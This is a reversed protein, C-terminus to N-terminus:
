ARRPLAGVVFKQVREVMAAGRNVEEMIQGLVAPLTRGGVPRGSSHPAALSRDVNLVAVLLRPEIREPAVTEGADTIVVEKKTKRGCVSLDGDSSREVLDGTRFWGDETFAERDHGADLYGRCISEGKLLLEGDADVAYQVTEIATGITGLRRRAYPNVFAAGATETMGYGECVAIGLAEFFTCLSPEIPACGVIILRLRSGLQQVLSRFISRELLAHLAGAPLAMRTDRVAAARTGIGVALAFCARQWRPRRAVQRLIRSRFCSLVKPVAFLFSPQLHELDATLARFSRAYGAECGAVLDLYPGMRGFLHAFPLWHISRPRDIAPELHRYSALATAVINKHTLCVAKPPGATGATFVITAIDDEVAAAPLEAAAVAAAAPDSMETLLDHFEGIGAVAPRRDFTYIRLPWRIGAMVAPLTATAVDGGVFLMSAGSVDLAHAADDASYSPHVAVVIGGLSQVAFDVLAWELCTDAFLAVRTSRGCGLERLRRALRAVLGAYEGWTISAWGNPRYWRVAPLDASRSTRWHLLATTTHRKLLPQEPSQRHGSNLQM